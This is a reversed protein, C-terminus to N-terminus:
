DRYSRLLERKKIKGLATVPLSDKRILEKPVQYALLEKKLYTKLETEDIQDMDSTYFAVVRQGWKKDHVGIVASRSIGPFTEIVQEVDHPNVNEGGTIILDTRRTEIFLQKRFNLYGFDGTKFWGNEDFVIENLDESLYGDFIQPGKLWIQGSERLPLAAGEDNRIEISNPPFLRGVSNKPSYMGSPSLIPNAAIQAFTETMGYSTVIPIGRTIAWEILELTIPGGGLLIAKFKPHTQFHSDDMINILMTPVMSAVEFERHNALLNSVEETEFKDVRYIASGYLLSRLIISIGGVHNLPLCLLWYKNKGPKFNEASAQAAFFVQRRKIPVIKPTGTSGSTLFLGAIQEPDHLSFSTTNFDATRLLEDNSIQLNSATFTQDFRNEDTTYILAPDIQDKLKEADSDSFDEHLSIFPIKLLFCASILFIVEDSSPSCILLPKHASFSVGETKKLLWDTFGYLNQYTYENRDSALFILSKDPNQFLDTNISAPTM